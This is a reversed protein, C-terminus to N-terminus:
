DSRQRSRRSEQAREISRAKRREHRLEELTPQWWGRVLESHAPAQKAPWTKVLEILTPKRWEAWILDEHGQGIGSYYEDRISKEALEGAVEMFVVPGYVGTMLVRGTPPISGSPVPYRHRRREQARAKAQDHSKTDTTAQRRRLRDEPENRRAAAEIAPWHKRLEGLSRYPVRWAKSEPDWHAWPVDGLEAVITRSYPTVIRIDAGAQLYSSEIPEFAFADRGREDAYAFSGSLERALWRGIRKEATKGPVFWANLDERWRARPFSERFREVTMRDYPFAATAGAKANAASPEPAQDEQRNDAAM